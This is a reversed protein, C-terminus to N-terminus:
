RIGLPHQPRPTDHLQLTGTWQQVIANAAARRSTPADRSNSDPLYTSWDQAPPQTEGYTALDTLARAQDGGRRQLAVTAVVAPDLGLHVNGQYNDRWSPDAAMRESDGTSLETVDMGFEQALAQADTNAVVFEVGQLQAKIMNDVANGGAGGVGFVVIRPQLDLSM